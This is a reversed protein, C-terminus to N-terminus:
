CAIKDVNEFPEGLIIKPIGRQRASVKAKILYRYAVSFVKVSEKM